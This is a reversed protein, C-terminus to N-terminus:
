LLRHLFWQIILTDFTLNNQDIQNWIQIELKFKFNIKSDHLFLISGIYLLVMALVREVWDYNVINVFDITITKVTEWGM